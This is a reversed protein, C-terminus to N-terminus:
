GSARTDFAHRLIKAVNVGNIVTATLLCWAGVGVLPVIEFALGAALAPVAVLWLAFVVLQGGRWAMGHPSPVPGKHGTNAYAWYSAFIPLLRGEMGVIMQALFGVLGFVGYATAARLTTSSPEAITLWVGLASAIALSALSAAAHLVAPDPTRLGSPKPRRHRLMWLVQSLFAGFGGVIVLAFLWVIPHRLLLTVFLGSVGIQLCVASTWLRPGSPMEAPLVMPLLRYGVGVVMMSAWGIAALHAHAFVNTLVYGPLFHYVKDFGILTGLTAAGLVNLFALAIHASVAAPLNALRIRSAVRAGVLLIGAGVTAASWAMGPYEEIWFHAVMGVIGTLVLGFATYDVWTAPLELRLAIPGVIYIAGLISATIWGLTVLHVIALMWPHYFFGSVGRPDLAVGASALALALHAAGFYLVILLRPPLHAPPDPPMPRSPRTLTDHSAARPRRTLVSWYVLANVLLALLGLFVQLERTLRAPYLLPLLYREIFDGQYATAGAHQRLYQEIPTLPCVWGGLEIAVGWVVAPVHLWVVPRWRLALLGGLAVFVLFAVHVVVVLDALVRFSSASM